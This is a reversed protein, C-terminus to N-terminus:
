NSRGTLQALADDWSGAFMRSRMADMEDAFEEFPAMATYVKGDMWFRVVLTRDPQGDFNRVEFSMKANPIGDYIPGRLPLDFADVVSTTDKTM